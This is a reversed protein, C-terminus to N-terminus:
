EAPTGDLTLGTTKAYDHKAWQTYAVACGIGLLMAPPAAVGSLTAINACTGVFGASNVTVNSRANTMGLKHLGHKMGLKAPIAVVPVGDGLWSFIPNAEEAVGSWLGYATTATDGLDGIGVGIKDLRHQPRAPGLTEEPQTPRSVEPLSISENKALPSAMIPDQPGSPSTCGAVGLTMVALLVPITAKMM